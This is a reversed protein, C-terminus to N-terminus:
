PQAMEKGIRTMLSKIYREVLDSMAPWLTAIEGNEDLKALTLVEGTDVKTTAEFSVNNEWKLTIEIEHEAVDLRRTPSPATNAV